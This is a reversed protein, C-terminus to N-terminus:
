KGFWKFMGQQKQQAVPSGIVESINFHRRLSGREEGKWARNHTSEVMHVLQTFLLEYERLNKGLKIQRIRSIEDHISEGFSDLVEKRLAIKDAVGEFIEISLKRTKVQEEIQEELIVKCEDITPERFYENYKMYINSNFSECFRLMRDNIKKESFNSLLTEKNIYSEMLQMIRNVGKETLVREKNAIKKWVMRQDNESAPEIYDQKLKHHIRNLTKECELQAEALSKEAEEVYYQQQQAAAQAQTGQGALASAQADDLIKNPIAQPQAEM